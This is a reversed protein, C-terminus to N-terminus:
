REGRRLFLGLEGERPVGRYHQPSNACGPPSRPRAQGRSAVAGAIEARHVFVAKAVQEAAGLFQDLGATLIDIRGLNSAM